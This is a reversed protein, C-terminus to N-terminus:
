AATAAGGAAIADAFSIVAPSTGALRAYSRPATSSSFIVNSVDPAGRIGVARLVFWNTKLFKNRTVVANGAVSDRLRAKIFGIPPSL